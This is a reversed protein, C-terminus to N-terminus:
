AVPFPFVYWERALESFTALSKDLTCDPPPPLKGGNWAKVQAAFGPNNQPNFIQITSGQKGRLWTPIKAFGSHLTLIQFDTSSFIWSEAVTRMSADAAERWAEGWGAILAEVHSQRLGTVVVKDPYTRLADEELAHSDSVLYYIVKQSPHAYTQAVQEACTFYNKHVAVTNLADDSASLLSSDGTRIQIGIVFYEPLSFLSTYQTIFALAAAKPRVLYNLLCSYATTLKLGLSHLHPAVTPYSFSRITVGRNLKVRLWPTNKGESYNGVFHPFFEDLQREGWAFAGIDKRADVFTQNAYVTRPPTTSSSSFPRSWDIYPSDFLLDFPSPQEWTIAFARKTLISYLFTSVMGLVRDAFGGCGEEKLCAFELLSPEREGSMMEAHLATYEDEWAGKECVEVPRGTHWEQLLESYKSLSGNVFLGPGESARPFSKHARAAPAPSLPGAPDLAGIGVGTAGMSHQRTRWLWERSRRQAPTLDRVMRQLSEHPDPTAWTYNRLQEDEKSWRIQEKRAVTEGETGVWSGDLRPVTMGFFYCVVAGVVFLLSLFCVRQAARRHSRSLPYRPDWVEAMSPAIPLKVSGM